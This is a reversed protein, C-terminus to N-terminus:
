LHCELHPLGLRRGGRLRATDADAAGAGPPRAVGEGMRLAVAGQHRRSTEQPPRGRRAGRPERRRASARAETGHAPRGPVAGGAPRLVGSHIAHLHRRELHVALGM